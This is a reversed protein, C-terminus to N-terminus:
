GELYIESINVTSITEVTTPTSRRDCYSSLVVVLQTSTTSVTPVGTLTVTQLVTTATLTAASVEMGGSFLRISVTPTRPSGEVSYGDPIIVSPVVVKMTPAVTFTYASWGSFTATLVPDGVRPYGTAMAGVSIFGVTSLNNDYCSSVQSYNWGVTQGQVNLQQISATNPFKKAAGAAVVNIAAVNPNFLVLAGTGCNVAHTTQPTTTVVTLTASSSTASGSANTAIARFIRGSVLAVSNLQLYKTNWGTLGDENTATNAWVGGVSEQWRFTPYPNGTADVSFSAVDTLKPPGTLNISFNAPNTTIVPAAAPLNSPVTLTAANSVVGSYNNAVRVTYQYGSMSETVSAVTLTSQIEGSLVTDAEPGLYWQYTLAGSGAPTTAVVTFTATGTATVTKNAPQTTISPPGTPLANTSTMSWDSYPNCLTRPRATMVM